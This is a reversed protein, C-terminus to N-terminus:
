QLAPAAAQAPGRVLGFGGAFSFTQPARTTYSGEGAWSSPVRPVACTAASLVGAPPSPPMVLNVHPYLLYLPYLLLM